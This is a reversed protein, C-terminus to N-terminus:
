KPPLAVFAILDDALGAHGVTAADQGPLKRVEEAAAAVTSPVKMTESSILSMMTIFSRAIIASLGRATVVVINGHRQSGLEKTQAHVAERIEPTPAKTANVIVSILTIKGYQRALARHHRGVVELAPATLEKFWVTVYVSGVHGLRFLPSEELLTVAM